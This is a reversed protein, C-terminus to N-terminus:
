LMVRDKGLGKALMLNKDAHKMLATASAGNEPFLALGITLSLKDQDFCIDTIDLGKVKERLNQAIAVLMDGKIDPIIIAFEDGGFRCVFSHRELADSLFTAVRQLIVDGTAHGYKDNYNKFNDIDIMMIGYTFGKPRGRRITDELTVDFYRRNLLGTLHDRISSEKLRKLQSTAIFNFVIGLVSVILVYSIFSSWNKAMLTPSQLVLATLAIVQVSSLIITLLPSLLMSSFLVSITVYVLPFFDTLGMQSEIWITGWSGLLGMGVTLLSSLLYKKKVAAGLAFGDIIALAGILLSYALRKYSNSPNTRLTFVFVLMLLILIFPLTWRLLQGRIDPFEKSKM